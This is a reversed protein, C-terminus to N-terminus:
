AVRRRGLPACGNAVSCLDAVAGLKTVAIIEVEGEMMMNYYSECKDDSITEQEALYALEAKSLMRQKRKLITFENIKLIRLMFDNLGNKIVMPRLVLISIESSSLDPFFSDCLNLYSQFANYNTLKVELSSPLILNPLGVKAIAFINSKGPGSAADKVLEYLANDKLATSPPNMIDINHMSKQITMASYNFFDHMVGYNYLMKNSQSLLKQKKKHTRDRDQAREM